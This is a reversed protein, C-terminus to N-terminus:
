RGKSTRPGIRPPSISTSPETEDCNMVPSSSASGSECCSVVSWTRLATESNGSHYVHATDFYNFGRAMFLDVMKQTEDLDIEGDKQPLRMFGFGFNKKANEFPDGMIYKRGNWM